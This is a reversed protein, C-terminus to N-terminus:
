KLNSLEIATQHVKEVSASLEEIQASLEENGAASNQIAQQIHGIDDLIETIKDNVQKSSDKVTLSLRRIEDAVVGFGRGLDGARAAEIAANLGLLNTQSAVEAVLSNIEELAKAHAQLGDVRSSIHEASEAQDQGAQAMQRGLHNLTGVQETINNLGDELFKANDAPFIVTLVGAFDGNVHELPLTKTIYNFGFNKPNGEAEFYQRNRWAKATNTVTLSPSDIHEGDKFPFPFKPSKHQYGVIGSENIYLVYSDKPTLKTLADVQKMILDNKSPTEASM